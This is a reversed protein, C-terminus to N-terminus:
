SFRWDNKFIKWETLKLINDKTLFILGLKNIGIPCIFKVLWKQKALRKCLKPTGLSKIKASSM